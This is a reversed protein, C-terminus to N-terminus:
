SEVDNPEEVPPGYPEILTLVIKGGERKVPGVIWDSPVSEVYGGDPIASFDFAEGNLILVDDSISFELSDDNRQPTRILRM